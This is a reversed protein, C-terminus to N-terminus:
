LPEGPKIFVGCSIYILHVYGKFTESRDSLIQFFDPVVVGLLLNTETQRDKRKLHM